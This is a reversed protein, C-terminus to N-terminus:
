FAISVATSARVCGSVRGAPRYYQISARVVYFTSYERIRGSRVISRHMDFLDSNEFSPVHNRLM